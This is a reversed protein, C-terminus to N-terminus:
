SIFMNIIEEPRLTVQNVLAYIGLQHINETAYDQQGFSPRAHKISWRFHCKHYSM